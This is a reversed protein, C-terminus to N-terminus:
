DPAILVDDMRLTTTVRADFRFLANVTDCHPLKHKSQSVKRRRCYHCAVATRQRPAQQHYMPSNVSASSQRYQSAQSPQQQQQQMTQDYPSTASYHLARDSDQLPSPQRTNQLHTLPALTLSEVTDSRYGGSSDGVAPAGRSPRRLNGQFNDDAPSDSTM